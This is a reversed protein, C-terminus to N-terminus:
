GWNVCVCVIRVLYCAVIAALFGVARGSTTNSAVPVIKFHGRDLKAICDLARCIVVSSSCIIVLCERVESQTSYCSMSGPSNPDCDFSLRWWHQSLPYDDDIHANEFTVSEVDMAM